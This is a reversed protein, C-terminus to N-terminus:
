DSREGAVKLSRYREYAEDWAGTDSPQYTELSFSRRVLARGDAISALEGLAMMQVLLNGTATAEVPGAVVPRGTADATFQNLLWNQSGGGVVHIVRPRRGALTQVQEAVARYELALSELVCRAVEGRNGPVPQETDRCFAQIRAPMDGPALFRPDGPVVFPGFAPAAAAMETLTDYGLSEGPGQWERRCEQLLWLGSINKLFRFKGGVGGENTMEAVLSAEDVIAEEVEIGVLSWTGSSIYIFDDDVAPVAAVACATDHGATAIVTLPPAGCEDRVAGRLEGLPTGPAIIEGFIHGPIGMRQLLPLAWNDTRPSYCQTTSAITFESAKRGSLWFNFLDPMNLLRAAPGLLPSRAEVMALLQFLTNIQMIQVGTRRYIEARPVRAFTKELIGDTRSDRYHYPNGLLSDDAALLGFDVGWTDVGISQLGDGQRASAQALGQQIEHWLYLVDWHLGSPLRLGRNAFRHVEQLTLRGNHRTGSIVRGSAAGLDVALYAPGSTPSSM